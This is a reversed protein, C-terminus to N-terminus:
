KEAIEIGEVPELQCWSLGEFGQLRDRNLFLFDRVADRWCSDHYSLCTWGSAGEQYDEGEKIYTDGDEGTVLDELPIVCWRDRVHVGVYNMPAYLVMDVFRYGEEKDHDIRTRFSVRFSSIM